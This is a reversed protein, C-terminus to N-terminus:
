HLGREFKFIQFEVSAVGYFQQQGPYQANFITRLHAYSGNDPYAAGAEFDPDGVNVAFSNLYWTDNYPPSPYDTVDIARNLKICRNAWTANMGNTSPDSLLLDINQNWTLGIRLTGFVPSLPSGASWTVVKLIYDYDYNFNSWYHYGGNNDYADNYQDSIPVSM